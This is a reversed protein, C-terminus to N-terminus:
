FKHRWKIVDYKADICNLWMWHKRSTWPKLKMYWDDHNTIKFTNYAHFQSFRFFPCIEWFIFIEFFLFFTNESLWMSKTTWIEAQYSLHHWNYRSCMCLYMCLWLIFVYPVKTKSSYTWIHNKRFYFLRNGIVPQESSWDLSM